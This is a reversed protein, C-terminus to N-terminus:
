YWIRTAVVNSRLPGAPRIDAEELSRKGREARGRPSNGRPKPGEGEKYFGPGWQQRSKQRATL